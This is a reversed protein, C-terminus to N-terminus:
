SVKRPPRILFFVLGLTILSLVSVSIFVLYDSKDMMWGFLPPGFAVGLFRLSNYLSTIMGRESKQVAGTIITNLCPLLLGTGISSVTLLGIFVYMNKFFFITAGLALTMLLLGINMLWRMLTGKKKIVSGTTYSTIVMGLLPIALIFGKVVGDINYPPDELINSLYFLVGFLIFLGLSGAFFCTILWSGKKSFVEGIKHIYKGLEQKQEHKPEKILFLVALLSILCFAPFAFFSAYWVILVLLSGIIPSLVKGSGNSAEILGLAKSETGGKYLDGVLAMAIPATGAAAMGQIARAAIIVGYSDWIAGFGALVGAGGYVILAPVIIMKRGFQDSLYGIVPIFLAAALSFISIVLSSQFKSIGLQRQMEPLVPVLMSNGFVQVIPITAIAIFEWIRGKSESGSQEEAEEAEKSKRGPTLRIDSEFSINLKRSKTKEM